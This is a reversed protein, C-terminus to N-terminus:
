FIWHFVTFVASICVTIVTCSFSRKVDWVNLSSSSSWLPTLTGRHEGSPFRIQRWMRQHASSNRVAEVPQAGRLQQLRAPQAPVVVVLDITDTIAVEVFCWYPLQSWCICLFCCDSCMLSHLFLVRHYIQKQNQSRRKRYWHQHLLITQATVGITWFYLAQITLMFLISWTIFRGICLIHQCRLYQQWPSQRVETGRLMQWSM